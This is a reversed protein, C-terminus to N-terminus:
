DVLCMFCFTHNFFFFGYFKFRKYLAEKLCSYVDKPSCSYKSLHTHAIQLVHAQFITNLIFNQNFVSISEIFIIPFTKGDECKLLTGEYPTNCIAQVIYKIYLVHWQKKIIRFVMDFRISCQLRSM